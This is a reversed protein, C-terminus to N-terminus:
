TSTLLVAVAARTEMRELQCGDLNSIFVVQVSAFRRVRIVPEGVKVVGNMIGIWINGDDCGRNFDSVQRISCTTIVM